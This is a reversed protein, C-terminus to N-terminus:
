RHSLEAASGPGGRYVVDSSALFAPVFRALHSGAVVMTAGRVFPMPVRIRVEIRFSVSRVTLAAPPLAVLHCHPEGDAGDGQGRAVLMSDRHQFAEEGREREPRDLDSVAHDRRRVLRREHVVVERGVVQDGVVAGASGAARPEDDDLRGRDVGGAKQRRVGDAAVQGLDHRDPLPHAGGDLLVAGPEHALEEVAAALHDGGARPGRRDGRARDGRRPELGLRPRQRPGLDGLHELAVPLRRGIGRLAAEVADLHAGAEAVQRRLEQRAVRVDAGVLVAPAELVAEAEQALHELRHAVPEARVPRDAAAQGVLAGRATPM